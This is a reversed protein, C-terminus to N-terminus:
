FSIFYNFLQPLNIETSVTFFKYDEYTVRTESKLTHRNRWKLEYIEKIVYKSPFQIGNHEYM